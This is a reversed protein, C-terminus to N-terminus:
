ACVGLLFFICVGVDRIRMSLLLNDNHIYIYIYMYCMCAYTAYMCIEKKKCICHIYTLMERIYSDNPLFKREENQEKNEFYIYM